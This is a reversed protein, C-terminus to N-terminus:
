PAIIPQNGPHRSQGGHLLALLQLQVHLPPTGVQASPEVGTQESPEVGVHLPETQTQASPLVGVFQKQLLVGNEIVNGVPISVTM